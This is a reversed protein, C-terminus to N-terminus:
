SQDASGNDAVIVEGPIGADRLAQSAAAVCAGITGEENLCPLVVSVEIPIGSASSDSM